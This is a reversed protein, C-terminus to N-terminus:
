RPVVGTQSDSSVAKLAPGARNIQTIVYQIQIVDDHVFQHMVRSRGIQV